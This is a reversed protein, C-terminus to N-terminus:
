AAPHLHLRGQAREPDFRTVGGKVFPSNFEPIEDPFYTIWLAEAADKAENLPGYPWLQYKGTAIGGAYALAMLGLMFLVREWAKM